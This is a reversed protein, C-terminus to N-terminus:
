NGAFQGMTLHAGFNIYLFYIPLSNSYIKGIEVEMQHNRLQKKEEATLNEKFNYKISNTM